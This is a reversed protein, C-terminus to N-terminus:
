KDVVYEGWLHTAQLENRHGGPHAPQRAQIPFEGELNPRVYFSPSHEEEEVEDM